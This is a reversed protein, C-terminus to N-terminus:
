DESEPWVHNLFLTYPDEGIEGFANKLGDADLNAASACAALTKEAASRINFDTDKLAEALNYIEMAGRLGYPRVLDLKSGLYIRALAQDVMDVIADFRLNTRMSLQVPDCYALQPVTAIDADQLRDATPPDVGDLKTVQDDTKGTPDPGIDLGFKKTAIRQLITQVTALPFSGVAFALFAALGPEALAGVAYGLPVAAIIRLAASLVFPPPLNYQSAGSVLGYVVWTYAGALAAIAELPISLFGCACLSADKSCHTFAIQAVATEAVLFTTPLLVLVLLVVPVILRYRGFRHTYLSDFDERPNKLDQKLFTSLYLKKARDDLSSLIDDRKIAWGRRIFALIPHCALYTAVLCSTLAALHLTLCTANTAKLQELLWGM